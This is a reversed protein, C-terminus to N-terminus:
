TRGESASNSMVEDHFRDCGICLNEYVQGSELIVRSKRRFEAESWGAEIGMREPRGANIAVYVSSQRQRALIAELKEERVNGVPRKTKLCCPYVNGNPEISVESGEGGLFNLGGSWQNCFNDEMTATSLGNKWARGRPWLKGIWQEPTAGFMSYEGGDAELMAIVKERRELMGAHFDDMGSVSITTVHRARLEAILKPTLLDGTTQVIIRTRSGYKSYLMELAPYLVPERVAELLVEGGALIVKGLEDPFNAIIPGPDSHEPAGEPYPRFREDYCHDCQRHCLWTLVYYISDM